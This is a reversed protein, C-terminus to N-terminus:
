RFLSLLVSVTHCAAMVDRALVQSLSGVSGRVRRPAIETLFRPVLLSVAGVQLGCLFRGARCSPHTPVLLAVSAHRRASTESEGVLLESYDQAAASLIAGSVLFVNIVLLMTRPGFADACRGAFLAGVCAGLLLSSVQAVLVHTEPSTSTAASRRRHKVLPCTRHTRWGNGGPPAPVPCCRGHQLEHYGAPLGDSLLWHAGWRGCALFTWVAHRSADAVYLCRHPLLAHTSCEQVVYATASLGTLVCLERYLVVQQACRYTNHGRPLFLFAM